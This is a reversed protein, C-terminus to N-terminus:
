VLRILDATLSNAPWQGPFNINLYDALGQRIGLQIESETLSIDPVIVTASGSMTGDEATWEVTVSGGPIVNGNVDMNNGIGTPACLVKVTM